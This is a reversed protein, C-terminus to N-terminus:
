RALMTAQEAEVKQLPLTVDTVGSVNWISDPLMFRHGNVHKTWKARQLVIEFPILAARQVSFRKDFLVAALVDFTHGELNRFVGLQRSASPTSLRRGKIQYRVSGGLADFGAASNASLKWGFASAFLHEAYDGVPGNGTRLAGRDRLEDLIDGYLRLLDIIGVDRVLPHPANALPWAGKVAAQAVVSSRQGVRQFQAYCQLASGCNGVSRQPVGAEVLRAKLAALADQDLTLRDLNLNLDREVRRLYSAYSKASEVGISQSAFAIFADQRM